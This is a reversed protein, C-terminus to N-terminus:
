WETRRSDEGGIKRIASELACIFGHSTFLWAFLHHQSFLQRIPLFHSLVSQFVHFDSLCYVLNLDFRFTLSILTFILEFLREVRAM